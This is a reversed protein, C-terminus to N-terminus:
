FNWFTKSIKNKLGTVNMRFEQFVDAFTRVFGVNVIVHIKEVKGDADVVVEFEHLNKGFKSKARM